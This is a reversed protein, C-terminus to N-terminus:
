KYIKNARNRNKYHFIDYFGNIILKLKLISIDNNINQRFLFYNSKSSSLTGRMNSFAYDYRRKAIKISDQDVNDLNGFPYAFMNINLKLKKELLDGSQIIEIEKNNFDLKSLSPHNITHAAITHGHNILFEIDNWNMSKLDGDEKNIKRSPFFFNQSYEYSKKSNLGIFNYPIFFLAKIGLPDLIEETFKRQSLFGDDFTILIKKSKKNHSFFDFKPDVVEYNKNLFEFINKLNDFYKYQINHFTLAKM